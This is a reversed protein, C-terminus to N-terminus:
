REACMHVETRQVVAEQDRAHAQPNLVFVGRLLLSTVMLVSDVLLVGSTTYRM